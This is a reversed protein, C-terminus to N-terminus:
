SVTKKRSPSGFRGATLDAFANFLWPSGPAVAYLQRHGTSRRRVTFLQDPLGAAQLHEPRGESMEFDSPEFGALTLTSVLTPWLNAKIPPPHHAM